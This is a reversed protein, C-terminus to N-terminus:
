TILQGVVAQSGFRDYVSGHISAIIEGEFCAFAVYPSYEIRRAISNRTTNQKMDPHSLVCVTESSMGELEVSFIRDSSITPNDNTPGVSIRDPHVV